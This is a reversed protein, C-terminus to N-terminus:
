KDDQQSSKVKLIDHVTRIIIIKEKESKRVLVSGRKCWIFKFTGKLEEKTKWLLFATAPTLSERLYIKSTKELGLKEANIPSSKAAEIWMDRIGERLFVIIVSNDMSKQNNPRNRKKRYVEIIDEPGTIHEYSHRQCNRGCRGKRNIQQTMNEAPSSLVLNSESDIIEDDDNDPIICSVRKPKSGGTCSKCKWDVSDTSSLANLQEISLAVCSGHLWKSCKSCQLGPLKKTIIKGCKDCKVM